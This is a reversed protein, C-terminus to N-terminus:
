LGLAGPPALSRLRPRRGLVEGRQDGAVEDHRSRAGMFEPRKRIVANPQRDTAGGDEGVVRMVSFNRQGAADIQGRTRVRDFPHENFAAALSRQFEGGSDGPGWEPVDCGGACHWFRARDRVTPEWTAPAQPRAQLFDSRRGQCRRGHRAM